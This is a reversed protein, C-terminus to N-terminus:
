VPSSVRERCSTKRDGRGGHKGDGGNGTEHIHLSKFSSIPDCSDIETALEILNELCWLLLICVQNLQPEFIENEDFLDDLQYLFMGTKGEKFIRLVFSSKKGTRLIGWFKKPEKLVASKYREAFGKLEAFTQALAATETLGKCLSQDEIMLLCVNNYYVVEDTEGRVVSVTEGTVPDTLITSYSLKSHDSSKRYIRFQNSYLSVLKM